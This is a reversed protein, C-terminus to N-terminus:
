DSVTCKLLQEAYKENLKCNTLMGTHDTLSVAIDFATISSNPEIGMAAPCVTNECAGQENM